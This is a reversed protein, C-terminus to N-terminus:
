VQYNWVVHLSDFTQDVTGHDGDGKVTASAAAQPTPLTQPTPAIAPDNWLSMGPASTVTKGGLLIAEVGASSLRVGLKDSYITITDAAQATASTAAMASVWYAVVAVLRRLMPFSQKM